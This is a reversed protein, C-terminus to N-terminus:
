NNCNGLILVVPHDKCSESYHDSSFGADLKASGPMLAWGLACLAKSSNSQHKVRYYDVHADSNEIGPTSQDPRKASHKMGGCSFAQGQTLWSGLIHWLKSVQQSSKQSRGFAEGLTAQRGRSSDPAGAPHLSLVLFPVDCCARLQTSISMGISSKCCFLLSWSSVALSLCSPLCAPLCASADTSCLFLHLILLVHLALTLCVFSMMEGTAQTGRGSTSPGTPPRSTSRGQGASAPRSASPGALDDEEMASVGNPQPLGPDAPTGPLIRAASATAAQASQLVLVITLEKCFPMWYWAMTM